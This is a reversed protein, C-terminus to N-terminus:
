VLPLFTSKIDLLEPLNLRGHEAIVNYLDVYDIQSLDLSLQSLMLCAAGSVIPAAMSTGSQCVYSGRLHLSTIMSGYTYTDVGQRNSFFSIGGDQYISGVSLVNDYQAPFFDSETGTNGAAAVILAHKTAYEFAEKVAEPARIAGLSLNIVNCGSRLLRMLGSVVLGWSGNNREDLARASVIDVDPAVGIFGGRGTQAAAIGAVHTGHGNFDVNQGGPGTYIRKGFEVRTSIGSDLIGLKVGNGTSYRHVLGLNIDPMNQFYHECPLQSISDDVWFDEDPEIRVISGQVEPNGVDPFDCLATKIASFYFKLEFGSARCDHLCQQLEADPAFKVFYRM